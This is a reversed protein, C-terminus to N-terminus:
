EGRVIGELFDKIHYRDAESYHELNKMNKLFAWARQALQDTYKGDFDKKYEERLRRFEGNVKALKNLSPEADATHSVGEPKKTYAVRRKWENHVESNDGFSDIVEKETFQEPKRIVPSDRYDNMYSVNPKNAPSLSEEAERQMLEQIHTNKSRKKALEYYDKGTVIYDPHITKDTVIDGPEIHFQNTFQDAPNGALDEVEGDNKGIYFNEPDDNKVFAGKAYKKFEKPTLESQGRSKRAKESAAWNAYGGLNGEKFEDGHRYFTLPDLRDGFEEFSELNSVRGGHQPYLGSQKISKTPAATEHFLFDENDLFNNLDKKGVKKYSMDRYGKGMKKWIPMAMDAAGAGPAFEGYSEPVLLDAVDMSTDLSDGFVSSLANRLMGMGKNRGPIEAELGSGLMEDDRMLRGPNVNAGSNSEEAVPPAIKAKIEDAIMAGMPGILEGRELADLIKASSAPSKKMVQAAEYLTKAIASSGRKRGMNNAIAMLVAATGGAGVNESAGGVIGGVGLAGIYDTLSLSRNKTMRDANIKGFRKMSAIQGALEYDDAFKGANPLGSGAVSNRISKALAQNVLTNGEQGLVHTSPDVMKFKYQRKLAQAESPTLTKGAYYEGEEAMQNRINQNKPIPPIKQTAASIEEAIDDGSVGVGAEDMKSFTDEVGKWNKKGVKTARDVAGGATTGFGVIKNKLAALGMPIRQAEPTENWAKTVNGYISKLARMGAIDELGKSTIYPRAAKAVPVLAEVGAQVGAGLGADKGSQMLDGTQALTDVGTIAGSTAIRGPITAANGFGGVGLAGIVKSTTDLAPYDRAYKADKAENEARIRDYAQGFDEEGFTSELGARFGEGLRQGLPGIVPINQGVSFGSAAEGVDFRGPPREAEIRTPEPFVDEQEVKTARDKWTPEVKKARDRWSM